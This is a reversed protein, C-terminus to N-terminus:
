SGNHSFHMYDKTDGAWSGGWPSLIGSVTMLRPQTHEAELGLRALVIARGPAAGAHELDDVRASARRRM